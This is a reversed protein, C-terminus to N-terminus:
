QSMTADMTFRPSILSSNNKSLLPSIQTTHSRMRATTGVQRVANLFACRKPFMSSVQLRSSAQRSFREGPLVAAIRCIIACIAVFFYSACPAGATFAAPCNNLIVLFEEGGFRGVYDYSRVSLLLRRITEKLVEDGILHGHTDNVRKFQDLDCLLIAIPISERRSRSVERGLLDM